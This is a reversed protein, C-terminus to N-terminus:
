DIKLLSFVVNKKDLFRVVNKYWPIREFKFLAVNFKCTTFESEGVRNKLSNLTTVARNQVVKSNRLAFNISTWIENALVGYENTFFVPINPEIRSLIWGVNLLWYEPGMNVNRFWVWQTISTRWAAAPLKNANRSKYKQSKKKKGVQQRDV